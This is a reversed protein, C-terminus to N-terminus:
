TGGRGTEIRPSQRNRHMHGHLVGLRHAIRVPLCHYTFEWVRRKKVGM